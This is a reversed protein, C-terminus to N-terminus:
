LVYHIFWNLSSDDLKQNTWVDITQNRFQYMEMQVPEDM